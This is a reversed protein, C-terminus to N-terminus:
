DPPMTKNDNFAAHLKSGWFFYGSLLKAYGSNQVYAAMAPPSNGGKDALVGGETDLVYLSLGGQAFSRMLDLNADRAYNVVLTDLGLRPVDVAQEYMPVIVVSAGRRALQYALLVSGALDRKPHDVVLGVRM